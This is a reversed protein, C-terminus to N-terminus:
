RDPHHQWRGKRGSGVEQLVRRMGSVKAVETPSSKGVHVKRVASSSQCQTRSWGTVEIREKDQEAGGHEEKVDQGCGVRGHPYRPKHGQPQLIRYLIASPPRRMCISEETQKAETSWATRSRQIPVRWIMGQGSGVTIGKENWETQSVEYQAVRGM